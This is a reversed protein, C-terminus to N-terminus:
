SLCQWVQCVLCVLCVLSEHSELTRSEIRELIVAWYCIKTHIPRSCYTQTHTQLYKSRKRWLAGPSRLGFVNFYLVVSLITKYAFIEHNTTHGPGTRAHCRWDGDFYCAHDAQSCRIPDCNTTMTNPAWHGRPVIACNKGNELFFLRCFFLPM